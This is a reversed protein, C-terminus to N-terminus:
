WLDSAAAASCLPSGGAVEDSCPLHEADHISRVHIFLPDIPLVKEGTHNTHVFRFNSWWCSAVPVYLSDVQFPPM